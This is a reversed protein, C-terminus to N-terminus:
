SKAGQEDKMLEACSVLRTEWIAVGIAVIGKGVAEAPGVLEEGPGPSLSLPEGLPDPSDIPEM